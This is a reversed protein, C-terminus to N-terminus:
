TVHRWLRRARINAIATAAVGYHRSLKAHTESSSRIERVDIETLRAKWHREGAHAVTRRRGKRDMDAVNDADTGLFLHAPNCCPPNDCRHLVSLNPPIPGWFAEWAVRHSPLPRGFKGGSGIMGYGFPHKAGTWEWCNEGISVFRWSREMIPRPRCGRPM